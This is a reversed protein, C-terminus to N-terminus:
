ENHYKEGKLITFARYVQEVLFLRIMQHSFTMTSFSLTHNARQRVEESFGFAGGILFVMKKAGGQAIRDEIFRAFQISTLSKGKEDLLVLYDEKSLKDLVLDGEKKKLTEKDYAGGNKVDPLVTWEFPTYHVIRKTYVEIGEKLYDFATKGICWCEIKM